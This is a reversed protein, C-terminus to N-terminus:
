WKISEVFVHWWITSTRIFVASFVLSSYRTSINVCIPAFHWGGLEWIIFTGLVFTKILKFNYQISNIMQTSKRWGTFNTPTTTHWLDISKVHEFIIDVFSVEINKAVLWFKTNNYHMLLAWSPHRSKIFVVFGNWASKSEM